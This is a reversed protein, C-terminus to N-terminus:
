DRTFGKLSAIEDAVKNSILDTAVATKQIVKQSTIRFADTASQKAHDFLKQSYKSSLNNSHKKQSM